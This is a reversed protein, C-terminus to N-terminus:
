IPTQWLAPTLIAEALRAAAAELLAEGKGATAVSADGIVGSLSRTGLQRWRYVGPNAGAIASLGPVLEGRCQSLASSDVDEGAVALMMSTEAECAHLVGAQRELLAAIEVKAAEWYTATALPIRHRVTLEAVIVELAATNGGHGNLVLIRRFKQRVLSGVLCDIVARMTAFDLTLTGGLSMHHESMGFPITPAVLVPEVKAAIRAARVAVEAALRFDVMVPLHPGHQETAGIPILVIADDDAKRRLDEARLRAWEVVPVGNAM